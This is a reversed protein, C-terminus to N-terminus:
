SRFRNPTRVHNRAAGRAFRGNVIRRPRELDFGGCGSAEDSLYGGGRPRRRMVLEPTRVRDRHRKVFRQRNCTPEFFANCGCECARVNRRATRPRPETIPPVAHFRRGGTARAQGPRSVSIPLPGSEREGPREGANYSASKSCSTSPDRTPYGPCLNLKPLTGRAFAEMM